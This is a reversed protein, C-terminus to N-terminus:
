RLKRKKEDFVKLRDRIMVIEKQIHDKPQTKAHPPLFSMHQSRSRSQGQNVQVDFGLSSWKDRPTVTSVVSRPTIQEQFDSVIFSRTESFPHNHEVNDCLIRPTTASSQCEDQGASFASTVSRPTVGDIVNGKTQNGKRLFDAPTMLALKDNKPLAPKVTSWEPLLQIGQNGSCTSLATGQNQSILNRNPFLIFDEATDINQFPITLLESNMSRPEFLPAGHSPIDNIDESVSGPQPNRPTLTRASEKDSAASTLISLNLREVDDPKQHVNESAKEKSDLPEIHSYLAYWAVSDM